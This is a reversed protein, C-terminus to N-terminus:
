LYKLHANALVGKLSKLYYYCTKIYIERGQALYKLVTYFPLKDKCYINTEYKTM